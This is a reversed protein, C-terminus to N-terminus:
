IKTNSNCAPILKCCIKRVKETAIGHNKIYVFGITSFANYLEQALEKVHTNSEPLAVGGIPNFCSFDVVPIEAM